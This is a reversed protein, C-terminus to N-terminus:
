RWRSLVKQLVVFVFILIKLRVLLSYGKWAPVRESAASTSGLDKALVREKFHAITEQDTIVAILEQLFRSSLFDFNSSGVILHRDDVLIAKLHSMRDRYLRVDFGNREAEWLIYEKLWPWNNHDPTILTVKAGNDRAQRLREVFPCTVYPSIVYVSERASGILELIPRFTQQNSRADFRYIEIGDFKNSTNLHNDRWSELYDEKLFRTIAADEIRLMMDHWSFNHETFNIGGIYAVRDDMVIIKKHGRAFALLNFPGSPNTLKVVVGQAALRAMMRLTEDREARIETDFWNRPNRLYKDNIRHKTFFEDAIIRRDPAACDTLCKSVAKGVGDGEFSLTQIYVYDRAARVDSQLSPWFEEADVQIQIRM